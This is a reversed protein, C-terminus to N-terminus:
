RDQGSTTQPQTRNWREALQRGARHLAESPQAMAAARGVLDVLGVALTAVPPEEFSGAVIALPTNCDKALETVHGVVKGSATQADHRGEGTIVLDATEIAQPLGIADAVRAAGPVLEAGWALLAAGTGGAAGAGPTAPDVGLLEAVRALAADVNPIDEVSLGKQPGFVAAAGQPGTLPNTVDTLVQLGGDPLPALDDLDIHQLQELGKAGPEIQGGDRSLCRAGLATLMGLGADTSASGGIGALVRGAGSALAARLLEGFGQTSADLGALRDLLGIGSSSALEMLAVPASKTIARADTFTEVDLPETLYWASQHSTGPLPGCTPVTRWGGPLTAALAAVTGEGGDAMPLLVLDDDPRLTRWGEALATAAQGADITGKFSDPAIVVRGHPAVLPEGTPRAFQEM